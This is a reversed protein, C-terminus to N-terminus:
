PEEKNIRTNNLQHYLDLMPLKDKIAQAVDNETQNSAWLINTNGNM